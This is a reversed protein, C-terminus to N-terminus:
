SPVASNRHFRQDAKNRRNDVDGDAQRPSYRAGAALKNRFGLPVKDDDADRSRQQWIARM